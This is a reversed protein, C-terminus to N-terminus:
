PRIQKLSVLKFGTSNQKLVCDWTTLILAGFSNKARLEPQVLITKNKQVGAYWSSTRTFEAGDKGPTCETRTFNALININKSAEACISKAAREEAPTYAFCIEHMLFVALAIFVSRLM